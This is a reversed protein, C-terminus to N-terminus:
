GNKGREHRKTMRLVLRVLLKELLMSLAIVVLTWAFLDPTELYIKANYIQGGVSNRTNAIVEAAIGSKWAFGLGTTFASLFYPQVSPIYINRLTKGHSFRYLEAMELLKRDTQLIGSEVNAWVIPIVTLFSIFVPVRASQLWVLALIIFSAVPTARIVAVLPQLLSRCVRFAATLVALLVGAALAAAFGLLVRWLSSFATIWFETRGALQWLRQVVLAPAPILVEKGVFFAACQWVALWFLVAAATRQWKKLKSEQKSRITSTTM